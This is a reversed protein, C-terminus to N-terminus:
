PVMRQWDRIVVAGNFPTVSEVVEVVEMDGAVSKM